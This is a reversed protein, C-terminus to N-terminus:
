RFFEAHFRLARGGGRLEALVARRAPAKPQGHLSGGRPAAPHQLGPGRQTAEHRGRLRATGGGRVAM